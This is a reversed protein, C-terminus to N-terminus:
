ESKNLHRIRILCVFDQRVESRHAALQFRTRRLIPQVHMQAQKLAGTDTRDIFGHIHAPVLSRNKRINTAEILCEMKFKGPAHGLLRVM